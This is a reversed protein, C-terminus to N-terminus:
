EVGISVLLYDDEVIFRAGREKKPAHWMHPLLPFLSYCLLSHNNTGYRRSTAGRMVKGEENVAVIEYERRIGRGSRGVRLSRWEGRGTTKM